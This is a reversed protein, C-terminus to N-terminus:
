LSDTPWANPLFRDLYVRMYQRPSGRAVVEVFVVYYATERGGISSDHLIM